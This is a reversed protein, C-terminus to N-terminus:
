ICGNLPSITTLPQEPIQPAEGGGGVGWGGGCVRWYKGEGANEGKKMGRKTQLTPHIKIM